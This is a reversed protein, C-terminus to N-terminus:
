FLTIGNLFAEPSMQLIQTPENFAFALLTMFAANCPADGGRAERDDLGQFVEIPAPGPLDVTGLDLVEKAQGEELVVGADDKDPANPRAFTVQRQSQAVGGAQVVMRNEEGGCDLGDVGEGGSLSLVAELVFELLEEGWPDQDHVFETVQRDVLGAGIQEELDDAATVLLSRGDDRGILGVFLPGLDEVVVGGDGRSNEVAEQVM